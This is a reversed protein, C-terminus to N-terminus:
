QELKKIVEIEPALDLRDACNAWNFIGGQEEFIIRKALTRAQDHDIAIRIAEVRSIDRGELVKVYHQVTKVQFMWAGVSMQNNTDLIMAADPEAVDKTECKRALDDVVEDKLAAVKAEMTIDAYAVAVMPLAPAEARLENDLARSIFPHALLVVMAALVLV